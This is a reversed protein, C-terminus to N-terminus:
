QFPWFVLEAGTQLECQNTCTKLCFHFSLGFKKSPTALLPACLYAYSSTPALTMTQEVKWVDHSSSNSWYQLSIQFSSFQRLIDFTGGNFYAASSWFNGVIFIQKRLGWFILPRFFFYALVTPWFTIQPVTSVRNDMRFRNPPPVDCMWHFDLILIFDDDEKEPEVTRHPGQGGQHDEGLYEWGISEEVM